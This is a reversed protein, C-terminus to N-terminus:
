IVHVSKHRWLHDQLQESECLPRGLSHHHQHPHFINGGPWHSCWLSSLIWVHNLNPQPIDTLFFCHYHFGTFFSVPPRHALWLSVRRIGTSLMCMFWISQRQHWDPWLSSTGVQPCGRMEPGGEVRRRIAFAIALSPLLQLWGTFLSPTPALTPSTWVLLLIWLQFSLYQLNLSIKYKMSQYNSGDGAKTHKFVCCNVYIRVQNKMYHFVWVVCVVTM